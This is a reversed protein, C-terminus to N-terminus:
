EYERCKPCVLGYHGSVWGAITAGKLASWFDCFEDALEPQSPRAEKALWRGCDGTCKVRYFTQIM